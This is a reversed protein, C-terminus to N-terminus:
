TTKQEKSPHYVSKQPTTPLRALRSKFGEREHVPETDKSLNSRRKRSAEAEENTFKSHSYLTLFILYLLQDM